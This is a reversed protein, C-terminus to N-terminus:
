ADQIEETESPVPEVLRKIHWEDGERWALLDLMEALEGDGAIGYPLFDDSIVIQGARGLYIFADEPLLAVSAASVGALVGFGPWKGATVKLTDQSITLIAAQDAREWYIDHYM